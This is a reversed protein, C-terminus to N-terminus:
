EAFEVMKFAPTPAVIQEEGKRGLAESEPQCARDPAPEHFWGGHDPRSGEDVDGEHVCQM